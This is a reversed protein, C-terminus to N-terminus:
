EEEVEIGLFDLIMDVDPGMSMMEIGVLKYTLEERDDPTITRPAPNADAWEVGLEFTAVPEWKWAYDDGDPWRREAEARAQALRDDTM